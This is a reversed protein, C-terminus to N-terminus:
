SRWRSYAQIPIGMKEPQADPFEFPDTAPSLLYNEIRAQKTAQAAKQQEYHPNPTAVQVNKWTQYNPQSQAQGAEYRKIKELANTYQVSLPELTKLAQQAVEMVRNNQYAHEEALMEYEETIAAERQRIFSMAQKASANLEEQTKTVIGARPSEPYFNDGITKGTPDYYDFFGVESKSLPQYVVVPVGFARSWNAMSDPVFDLRPIEVAAEKQTICRGCCEDEYGVPKPLEMGVWLADVNKWDYAEWPLVLVHGCIGPNNERTVVGGKKENYVIGGSEKCVDGNHVYNIIQEVQPRSIEPATKFLKM